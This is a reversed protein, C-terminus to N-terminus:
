EDIYREKKLIEIVKDVTESLKGEENVIRYDYWPADEEIEKKALTLRRELEDAPMSAKRARIRSELTKFSPPMIFIGLIGYHDKLFRAGAITIDGLITEGKDFHENFFPAYTGNKFGAPHWYVELINGAKVNTDFEKESMFFYDVGNKEDPRPPRTTATVLDVCNNCRKIVGKIVSNKGVGTPGAIVVM